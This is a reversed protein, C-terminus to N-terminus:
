LGSAHQIFLRKLPGLDNCLKLGWGRLASIPRQQILFFQKFGEMMMITQWVMAKRERQYAGLTRKATLQNNNNQLHKCWSAVDALGLNLGLGALPHITHAADGALLWRAGVYEKAHRMHLPFQHRPSLLRTGGLKKTFTHTLVENFAPEDLTMLYEAYAHDTSWVISCQHPETLPLFALSGHENFVQYATKGHAIDTHVRTVLAQQQYSWEVLSVGLKQRTPSHGGEAVILLQGQWSQKGDSLVIGHRDEHVTEITTHSILQLHPNIAMQSLLAQKIISEEIITGLTSEAITRADFDIAAGNMTDWVHMRQYPSLRDREMVDWVQLSALFQQSAKNIAYVRPDHSSSDVVLSGTDILAVSFSSAAMALAATLGVVGGGIVLVDFSQSM